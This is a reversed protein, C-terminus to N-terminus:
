KGRRVKEDEAIRKARDRGIDRNIQKDRQIALLISRKFEEDSMGYKKNDFGFPDKKEMEDYLRLLETDSKANKASLKEIKNKLEKIERDRSNGALVEKVANRAIATLQEPSIDM